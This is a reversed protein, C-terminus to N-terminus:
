SNCFIFHPTAADFPVFAMLVLPRGLRVSGLRLGLRCDSLPFGLYRGSPVSTAQLKIEASSEDVDEIM